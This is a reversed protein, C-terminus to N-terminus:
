FSESALRLYRDAMLRATYGAAWRKKARVSLERRMQDATILRDIAAAHDHPDFGEVLIGDGDNEILEAAGPISGAVAPVGYSKAELLVMPCGTVDPGCLQSPFSLVDIGPYIARPATQDRVWRVLGARQAAEVM